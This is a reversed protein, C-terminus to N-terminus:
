HRLLAHSDYLGSLLIYWELIEDILFVFFFVFSIEYPLIKRIQFTSFFLGLNLSFIIEWKM